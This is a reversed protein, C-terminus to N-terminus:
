GGDCHDSDDVVDHVSTPVLSPAAQRETICIVDTVRHAVVTLHWEDRRCSRAPHTTEDTCRNCLPEASRKGFEPPVVSESDHRVRVEIESDSIGHEGRESGGPLSTRREPAQEDM